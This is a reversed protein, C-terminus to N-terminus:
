PQSCIDAAVGTRWKETRWVANLMVYGHTMILVQYHWDPEGVDWGQELCKHVINETVHQYLKYVDVHSVRINM